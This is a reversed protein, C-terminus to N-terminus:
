LITNVNSVRNAEIICMQEVFAQSYLILKLSRRYNYLVTRYNYLVTCQRGWRM